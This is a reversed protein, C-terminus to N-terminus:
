EPQAAGGGAFNSRYEPSRFGWALVDKWRDVWGLACVFRRHQCILSHSVVAAVGALFLM